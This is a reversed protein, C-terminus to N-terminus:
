GDGDLSYRRANRGCVIGTKEKLHYRVNGRERKNMVSFATRLTKDREKNTM